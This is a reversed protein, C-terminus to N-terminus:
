RLALLSLCCPTVKGDRSRPLRRAVGQGRTGAITGTTALVFWPLALWTMTVSSGTAAVIRDWPAWLFLAFLLVIAIDFVILIRDTRPSLTARTM